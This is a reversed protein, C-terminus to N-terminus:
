GVIAGSVTHNAAIATFAIDQNMTAASYSSDGMTALAQHANFTVKWGVPAIAAGGLEGAVNGDCGADVSMVKNRNDTYVGGWGVQM